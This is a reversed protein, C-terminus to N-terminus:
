ECSPILAVIAPQIFLIFISLAFFIIMSNPNNPILQCGSLLISDFGFIIGFVISLPLNKSIDMVRKKYNFAILLKLYLLPLLFYLFSLNHKYVFIIAFLGGAIYVFTLLIYYVLFLSQNITGRPSFINKNM